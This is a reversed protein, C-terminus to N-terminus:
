RSIPPRTPPRRPCAKAKFPVRGATGVARVTESFLEGLRHKHRKATMHARYYVISPLLSRLLEVGAEWVAEIAGCAKNLDRLGSSDGTLPAMARKAEEARATQEALIAKKRELTALVDLPHLIAAEESPEKAATALAAGRVASFICSSILFVACGWWLRGAVAAMAAPASRRGRDACHPSLALVAPRKGIM